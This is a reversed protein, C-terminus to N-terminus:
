GHVRVLRLSLPPSVYDDNQRLQPVHFYRLYSHHRDLRLSSYFVRECECVRARSDQDSPPHQSALGVLISQSRM